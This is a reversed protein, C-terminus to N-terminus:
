RQPAVSSVLLVPVEPASPASSATDAGDPRWRGVVVGGLLARGSRMPEPDASVLVAQLGGRELDVRGFQLVGLPGTVPQVVGTLIAAQGAAPKAKVQNWLTEIMCDLHGDALVQLRGTAARRLAAFREQRKTHALAKVLDLVPALQEPKLIIGHGVRLISCSRGSRCVDCTNVRGHAARLDRLAACYKCKLCTPQRTYRGCCDGHCSRFYVTGPRRLECCPGSCCHSLFQLAPCAASKGGCTECTLHNGKAVLPCAAPCRLAECRCDACTEEWTNTIPQYVKGALTQGLAVKKTVKGAGRCTRCPSLRTSALLRQVDAEKADALLPFVKPEFFIKGGAIGAVDPPSTLIVNDSESKPMQAAPPPAKPTEAAPPPAKPTEAAPPPSGPTESVPAPGAAALCASVIVATTAAFGFLTSSRM